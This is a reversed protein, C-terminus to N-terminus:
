FSLAQCCNEGIASGPRHTLYTQHALSYVHPSPPAPQEAAPAPTHPSATSEAVTARTPHLRDDRRRTCTESAARNHSSDQAGEAPSPAPRAEAAAWADSLEQM